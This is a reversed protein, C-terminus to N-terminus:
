DLKREHKKRQHLADVRLDRRAFAASVPIGCPHWLDVNLMASGEYVKLRDKEM